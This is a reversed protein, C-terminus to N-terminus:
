TRNHMIAHSHRASFRIHATRRVVRDCGMGRDSATFLHIPHMNAHKCTSRTHVVRWLGWLDYAFICLDFVYRVCPAVIRDLMSVCHAIITFITNYQRVTHTHTHASASLVCLYKMAYAIKGIAFHYWIRMVKLSEDRRVKLKAWIRKARINFECDADESQPRQQTAQLYLAYWM